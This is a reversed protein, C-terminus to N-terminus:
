AAGHARLWSVCRQWGDAASPPDYSPRYDAFFAHKAEPYVVIESRQAAESGAALALRMAEVTDLPIGTDAGGYLGLVPAKLDAARTVPHATQRENTVGTLRGYWAVGARVAPNHASYLWTQRGGWCFGTVGLRATDGGQTAAWAVAADLDSAVQADPVKSITTAFLTDIDAIAKADGQRVFLEPAIALYGLRAFRRAVDAIHEHVGFIESVVLIIPLREGGAPRARYAPMAFGNSDITVAGAELGSGDTTIASAMIPQVARAYGTGPDTRRRPLPDPDTRLM